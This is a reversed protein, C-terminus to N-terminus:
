SQGFQTPNIPTEVKRTSRMLNIETLFTTIGFFDAVQMKMLLQSVMNQLERPTMEEMVKKSLSEMRTSVVKRTAMRHFLGFLVPKRETIIETVPENVQRAGLILIALINGLAKCDKAVALTEEMIKKPNLVLTPLNAIQESVLVLTATSPPAVMYTQGGVKVEEERQLLTDAVKSEITKDEM